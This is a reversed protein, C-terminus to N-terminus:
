RSSRLVAEEVLLATWQESFDACRERVLDSHRCTSPVASKCDVADALATRWMALVKDPDPHTKVLALLMLHQMAVQAQLSCLMEETIRDM